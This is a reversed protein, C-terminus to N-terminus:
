SWLQKAYILRNQPICLVASRYAGPELVSAEIPRPSAAMLFVMEDIDHVVRAAQLRGPSTLANHRPSSFTTCCSSSGTSQHLTSHSLHLLLVTLPVQDASALQVLAEGTQVATVPDVMFRLVKGGWPQCGAALLEHSCSYPLRKILITRPAQCSPELPANELNIPVGCAKVLGPNCCPCHLM